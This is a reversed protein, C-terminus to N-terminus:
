FSQGHKTCTKLECQTAKEENWCKPELTIPDVGLVECKGVDQDEDYCVYAGRGALIDGIPKFIRKVMNDGLFMVAVRTKEDMVCDPFQKSDVCNSETFHETCHTDDEGLRCLRYDLGFSRCFADTYGCMRRTHDFEPLLHFRREGFDNAKKNIRTNGNSDVVERERAYTLGGEGTSRSDQANGNCALILSGYGPMALGAFAGGPLNQDEMIATEGEEAVNKGYSNTYLATIFSLTLSELPFFATIATEGEEGPRQLAAHFRNWANCGLKSLGFGQNFKSRDSADPASRFAYNEVLRCTGPDANGELQYEMDHWPRPSIVAWMAKDLGLDNGTTRFISRM